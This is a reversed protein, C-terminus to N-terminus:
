EGILYVCKGITSELTYQIADLLCTFISISCVFDPNEFDAKVNVGSEFLLM